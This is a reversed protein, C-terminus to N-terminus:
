IEVVGRGARTVDYMLCVCILIYFLLIISYSTIVVFHNSYSNLEQMEFSFIEEERRHIEGLLTKLGSSIIYFSIITFDIHIIGRGRTYGYFFLFM